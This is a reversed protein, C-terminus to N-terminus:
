VPERGVGKDDRPRTACRFALDYTSSARAQTTEPSPISRSCLASPSATTSSPQTLIPLIYVSCHWTRISVVVWVYWLINVGRPLPERGTANVWETRFGTRVQYFALAIILLGLIAHFYNQLPRRGARWFLSKVAGVARGTGTPKVKHIVIGIVVQALYLFVVAVGVRKHSTSLSDAGSQDVSVVGLVFGPIILVGAIVAQILAHARFWQATFTRLWRAVLAGLPLFFLFGVTLLIGHAVIMKQYPLLPIGAGSGASGGSGNSGPDLPDTGSQLPKSLDLTTTGMAIHM